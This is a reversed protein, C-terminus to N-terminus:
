NLSEDILRKLALLGDRDLSMSFNRQTEKPNKATLLRSRFEIQFTNAIAAVPTIQAERVFDGTHTLLATMHLDRKEVTLNTTVEPRVRAEVIRAIDFPRNDALLGSRVDQPLSEFRDNAGDVHLVELAKTLAMSVPRNSTGTIQALELKDGSWSFMATAVRRQNNSVSAIRATSTQCTRVYTDVCHHMTKAEEWLDYASALFRLEYNGVAHTDAPVQWTMNLGQVKADLKERHTLAQKCLWFWGERRQEVTLKLRVDWAWRIIALLEGQLVDFDVTGFRAVALKMIHPYCRHVGYETAYRM